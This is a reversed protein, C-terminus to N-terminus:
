IGHKRSANFLAKLVISGALEEFDRSVDKGQFEETYTEHKDLYVVSVKNFFKFDENKPFVFHIDMSSHEEPTKNVLELFYENDKYNKNLWYKCEDYSMNNEVYKEHLIALTAFSEVQTKTM